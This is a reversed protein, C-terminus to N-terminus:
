GTFGRLVPVYFGKMLPQAIFTQVNGVEARELMRAVLDFGPPDVVIDM